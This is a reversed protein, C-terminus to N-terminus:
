SRRVHIIREPDRQTIGQVRIFTTVSVMHSVRRSVGFLVLRRGGRSPGPKSPTTGENSDNM